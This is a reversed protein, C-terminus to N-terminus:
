GRPTARRTCCCDHQTVCMHRPSAFSADRGQAQLDLPMQTPGGYQAYRIPYVPLAYSHGQDSVQADLLRGVFRAQELPASGLPSRAHTNSPLKVALCAMM